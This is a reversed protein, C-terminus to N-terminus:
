FRHGPQLANGSRGGTRGRRVTEDRLESLIDSLVNASEADKMDGNAASTRHGPGSGSGDRASSHTGASSTTPKPAFDALDSQELDQLFDGLIDETSQGRAQAAPQPTSGIEADAKAKPPRQSISSVKWIWRLLGAAAIPQEEIM